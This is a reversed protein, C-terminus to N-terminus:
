MRAILEDLQMLFEERRDDILILEIAGGFEDGEDFDFGAEYLTDCTERYIYSRNEASGWLKVSTQNNKIARKITAM